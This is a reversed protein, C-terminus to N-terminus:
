KKFDVTPLAATGNAATASVVRPAGTTDSIAFVATQDDSHTTSLIRLIGDRDLWDTSAAVDSTWTRIRVKEDKDFWRVGATGDAPAGAEIRKRGNRDFLELSSNGNALTAAALRRKEDKDYWIWSAQGSSTTGGSIRRKGDRDCLDMSADGKAQTVIGIRPVSDRDSVLLSAAGDPDTCANVRLVGSKDSLGIGAFGDSRTTAVIRRKGDKDLVVLERCSIKEFNGDGSPRSAAALGGAVVVASLALIAYRQYRVSTQLQRIQDQMIKDMPPLITLHVAIREGAGHVAATASAPRTPISAADELLIRRHAASTRHGIRRLIWHDGFRHAPDAPDLGGGPGGMRVPDLIFIAERRESESLQDAEAATRDRPIVWSLETVVGTDERVPEVRLARRRNVRPQLAGDPVEGAEGLESRLRCQANSSVACRFRSAM